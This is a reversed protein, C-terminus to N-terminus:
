LDSYRSVDKEWVVDVCSMEFVEYAPAPCMSTQNGDGPILQCPPSPPAICVVIEQNDMFEGSPVLQDLMGGNCCVDRGIEEDWEVVCSIQFMDQANSDAIHEVGQALEELLSVHSDHGNFLEEDWVVNVSPMGDLVPHASDMATELPLLTPSGDSPILEYPSLPVTVM